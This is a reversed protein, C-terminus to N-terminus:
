RAAIWDLAAPCSQLFSKLLAPQAALDFHVRSGIAQHREVLDYRRLPEAACSSIKGSPELRWNENLYGRLRQGEHGLWTDRGLTLEIPRAPRRQPSLHALAPLVGAMPAQTGDPLVLHQCLFALGGGEAYIRRGYCVHDRLAAHLCHNDSLEAARLQPKGCGIYVLDCDPPLGEDRLPSFDRVTAGLQELADLTDPFYGRFVEDYAVAVTLRPQRRSSQRSSAFELGDELSGTREGFEPPIIGEPREFGPLKRRQALELLAEPRAYRLLNDGLCACLDRPPKEGASLRGIAERMGPMEELAGLVPLGWLSEIMTQQRYFDSPSNVGDLLLADALPRRTSLHHDPRSRVDWVGLRPLALWKCLTKLQGGPESDATGSLDGEVIALDSQRAVRFFTQRCFERSM